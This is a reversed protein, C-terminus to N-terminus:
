EFRQFRGDPLRVLRLRVGPELKQAGSLPPRPPRPLFGATYLDCRRGARDGLRPVLPRFRGVQDVLTLEGLSAELASCDLAKGGEVVSLAGPRQSLRVVTEGLVIPGGQAERAIAEVERAAAEDFAGEIRQLRALRSQIEPDGWGLYGAAYRFNGEGDSRFRGRLQDSESPRGLQPLARDVQAAAARDLQRDLSALWSQARARVEDRDVLVCRASWKATSLLLPSRGNWETTARGLPHNKLVGRDVLELEVRDGRALTVAPVSVFSGERFFPAWLVITPDRRLTLRVTLNANLLEAAGLTLVDVTGRLVPDKRPGVQLHCVLLGGDVREREQESQFAKWLAPADPNKPARREETPAFAPVVGPDEGWAGVKAWAAVPWCAVLILPWARV